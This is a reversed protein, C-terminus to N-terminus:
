YYMHKHMYIHVHQSKLGHTFNWIYNYARSIDKWKWIVQMLMRWSLLLKFAIIWSSCTFHTKNATLWAVTSQGQFASCCFTVHRCGSPVVVYFFSSFFSTLWTYHHITIIPIGRIWTNLGEYLILFLWKFDMKEGCNQSNM